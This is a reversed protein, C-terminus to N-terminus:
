EVVSCADCVDDPYPPGEGKSCLMAGCCRCMVPVVLRRAYAVLAQSEEHVVHARAVVAKARQILEEAECLEIRRGRASHDM